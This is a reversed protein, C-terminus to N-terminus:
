DRPDFFQPQTPLILLLALLTVLLTLLGATGNVTFSYWIASMGKPAYSGWFIVGAIFHWLYRVGVALITAMLAILLAFPKKQQRLTKVLSDSFIGALGMSIFALIYEIFVQSMSLYYVKGLAFHLLGWILGALLGYKLGRRLSFIVLPIAGYSPSFWGAFDPIFSLAMALAAFIAAEILYKVNTNKSMFFEKESVFFLM